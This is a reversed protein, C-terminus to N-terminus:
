RIELFTQPDRRLAIFRAGAVGVRREKLAAGFTGDVVGCAVVVLAARGEDTEAAARIHEYRWGSPGPAKGSPLKAM